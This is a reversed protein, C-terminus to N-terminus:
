TAMLEALDLDEDRLKAVDPRAQAAIMEKAMFMEGGRDVTFAAQVVGDNLYFAIFDLDNVSGRIVVDDWREADGAHQLNYEYQDSWFWHPDDFVTPRGLLNKAAAMAQKNANDFHEVRLRRGFLPHWHNTVDGAALVNEVNTRCYEDVLVGGDVEIGSRQAVDTNPVTGIGVVVVDGEVVTGRRTRVVVGGGTETVSDVAEGTRLDVGHDRQIRTCVSGMERGLVRELPVDMMELMTVEAGAGRAVSAVECGIFGAGVTIVRAGPRLHGRLREADDLTRLYVVRDGEVGPIRRARCGTAIVVADAPVRGGDELEVCRGAADIRDVRTGLRLEVGNDACWQEDLLAADAQEQQGALYEKSLPPRQYPAHKEDGILIIPGDHKRRRLTRATVAAAQGAGITVITDAM